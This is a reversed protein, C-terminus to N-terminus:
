RSLPFLISKFSVELRYRLSVFIGRIWWVKIYNQIIRLLTLINSMVALPWYNSLWIECLIHYHLRAHLATFSLPFSTIKLWDAESLTTLWCHWRGALGSLIRSFLQKEDSVDHIAYNRGVEALYVDSRGDHRMKGGSSARGYRFWDNLARMMSVLYLM